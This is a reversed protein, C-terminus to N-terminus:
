KNHCKCDEYVNATKCTRKTKVIDYFLAPGPVVKKGADQKMYRIDSQFIEYHTLLKQENAKLTHGIEKDLHEPIMVFLPPNMLESYGSKTNWMIFDIHDGHDSYIWVITDDLHGKNDLRRLYKEVQPDIYHNNEGTFEHASIIRATFFKRYDKYTDFFKEMYELSTGALDREFICNRSVSYPGRGFGFSLPNDKPMSNYDCALQYFMHDADVTDSYM